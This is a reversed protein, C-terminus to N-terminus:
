SLVEGLLASDVNDFGGAEYNEDENGAIGATADGDDPDDSGWLSM